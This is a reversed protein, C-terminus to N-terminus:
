EKSLVVAPDQAAIRVTPVAAAVVTIVAATAMAGAFLALSISGAVAGAALGIVGGLFAMLAARGVFLGVIQRTSFGLARAVGTEHRRAAANGSMLLTLWLTSAALVVPVLAWALQRGRRRLEDRHRKEAKIAANGKALTENRAHVTASLKTGQEIVQVGPLIGDVESRVRGIDLWAERTELGLLENIQGEKGLLSQADRLAMWVTIDDKSGREPYCEAVTYSQEKIVVAQGQKIGLGHYVEHGLAVTGQAPCEWTLEFGDEAPCLAREATGVVIVTWSREPWVLKQRLRAVLHEVTEPRAAALEEVHTEPMTGAAYDDAYWDGLEQGQPLIVINFGLNLMARRVIGDMTQMRLDLAELREKLIGETGADFARFGAVAGVSAGVAIAVACVGLLFSALRHRMERTILKWITM